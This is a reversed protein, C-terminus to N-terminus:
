ERSVEQMKRIAQPQTRKTQSPSQASQPCPYSPINLYIRKELFDILGKKKVILNLCVIFM